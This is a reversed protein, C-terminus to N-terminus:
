RRSCTGCAPHQAAQNNVHLSRFAMYQPSNYIERLTNVKLDGFRYKGFPDVCCMNVIGESSVTVQDTARFCPANYDIKREVKKDGVWNGEWVLKSHERWIQGFIFADDNTFHEGDVVTHVMVKVSGANKIAYKINDCVIQFKGKLGMIKDHQESRVANLSFTLRSLGAARLADFQKPTCYVGNTYIDIVWDRLSRAYQVREVIFRDLLPEALGAFGISTVVDTDHAQDILRKYLDMAM